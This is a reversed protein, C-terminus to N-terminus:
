TMALGRSPGIAHDVEPIAAICTVGAPTASGSKSSRTAFPHEAPTWSRGMWILLRAWPQASPLPNGNSDPVRGGLRVVEGGAREVEGSIRVLDNDVDAYRMAETPYFPGETAPPTPIAAAALGSVPLAMIGLVLKRRGPDDM